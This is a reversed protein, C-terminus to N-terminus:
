QVAQGSLKIQQTAGSVNLANDTLTVNGTISGASTPVFEIGLICSATPSLLQGNSSCSTDAGGLSFNAAVGIQSLNLQANGLNEVIVDQAASVSGVNTNPFALSPPDSLDVKRIRTNGFDAIYLNGAGDVAVGVPGWLEASTAPGGDGSYGAAGNGAVTTIIGSANVKRIHENHADVIYVNGAGDVAVGSPSDLEASTALGGDGSYGATGNGAITTIIGSANVERIRSNDADAIYLNGAGDVAVDTPYDLEASTAPGGDGSYGYAGNGAVTTIIGSTNVERIRENLTDAVYLNGARDASLRSPYDLEASTAPGGDGGYGATGNGAVTTIIGSANVKRIRQNYADVIYVNGAGDVAVGSPSDLEASTALGGDGSYGATGNGAITTIVGSPNVKRIRNNGADAIYFNGAGDVVVANPYHLEASTAPGGDGSDGPTGNGAVTSIIGPGFGISPGLGIGSVLTTQVSGRDTAVVADIRLGPHQPHFTVSVSCLVPPGSCSPTGATFETGYHLAFSPTGSPFSYWLTAAGSSGIAVTGLNQANGALVLLTFSTSSYGAASQATFSLPYTGGTGVAPTGSLVGTSPNFTVGSPLSGTEGLAPAPFGTATVTFTGATGATFIASSASTIAPAQNVALTFSQATSTGVSNTATFTLPYSGGASAGPTGSLVGTAATFTVGTPLTGTKTFTPAPYGTATVTFTSAAGTTFTATAPSTIAPAQDVTLTFTQATSTGAANTATISISYVGGTGAVPTGSLVGAESLTVGSPLVGTESFTPAPYGTGTVTFTGATGVTFTTKAASTVTPAQDVTLIFTQAASTGVSNTATFTLPYSGGASAGPTGSLVGTAATFTVGTPPTGTKTFTPAPYGTATVTFTSAAGTTFTAAAASTIAPAQDVTLTFTQATSTGAANSATVSISYVGGTGAV